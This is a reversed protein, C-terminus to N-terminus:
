QSTLLKQEIWTFFSLIKERIVECGADGIGLRSLFQPLKVFFRLLHELGFVSSAQVDKNKKLYSECSSKETPYLLVKWLLANFYEKVGNFVSEFIQVEESNCSQREHQVFDNIITDVSRKAPLEYANKREMCHRYDEVLVDKLAKPFTLQLKAQYHQDTDDVQEDEKKSRKKKPEQQTPSAEKSLQTRKRKRSSSTARGRKKTTSKPQEDEQESEEKVQQQQQQDSSLKKILSSDLWESEKDESSFSIFYQLSGNEDVKSNEIKGEASGHLITEGIKFRKNGRTM